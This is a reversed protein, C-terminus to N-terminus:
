DVDTLPAFTIKLIERAINDSCTLVTESEFIGVKLLTQEFERLSGGVGFYHLKASFLFFNM